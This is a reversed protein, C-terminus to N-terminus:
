YIPRGEDWDREQGTEEKILQQSPSDVYGVGSLRNREHVSRALPTSKDEIAAVAGIWEWVRSVDGSRNERVSPRVNSNQEVKHQVRDWLRARRKASFEERLIDDRLQAMSIFSEPFAHPDQAHLAAQVALKDLAIKALTRAREETTNRSKISFRAYTYVGFIAVASMLKWLHRVLALRVSRRAACALSMRALSTSALTRRGTDGDVKTEIEDRGTIEGIASAWLDDFEGQSMGRRRKTAMDLKLDVENIEPGPAHKGTDDVLDGCEFKANRERLEEVARDAVAKVKRAKEGDPECTPALPVLGNFSLPHPRLVFDPDCTTHLKPYCYAHQPCPECQPQLVELPQAWEPIEMGAISTSPRGVGCYGVELKEQRWWTAFGGLLAVLIAWPATKLAAPTQRAVKNRRPPLIDVQGNKARERVLELQEEPTFEEGTDGDEIQGDAESESEQEPVPSPEKKRRLRPAEFTSSSPVTVDEEQHVNAYDTKRRGSSSKRREKGDVGLTRRRDRDYVRPEPSGSQFPNDQTFPSSHDEEYQVHPTNSTSPRSRRSPPPHEDIEYEQARAHKTSTRKSPVRQPQERPVPTLDLDPEVSATTRRTSRRSVNPTVSPVDSEETEARATRRTSRRTANSYYSSAESEATPERTSRRTSRRVSEPPHLSPFESEDSEERAVSGAVSNERSSPVDVIGRASRKTRSRAALQHQAQPLVHENFLAVLEPKKASSSYRVNHQILISRLRPATVSNPNFGPLLHEEDM